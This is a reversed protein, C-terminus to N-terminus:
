KAWTIDGAWGTQVGGTYKAVIRINDSGDITSMDLVRIETDDSLLDTGYFLNSAQAVVVQDDPMGPVVAIKCGEFYPVFTDNMSYANVYGAASIAAIYLRYTTPNIYMYLDESIHSYVASPVATLCASLEAIVNGSTFAGGVAITNVPDVTFLGTAATTFGEFQGPVAAAGTWICNESHQAIIGAIRSLLFTAFDAGMATNWQGAKMQEAQWDAILTEKCIEYNIQLPTPKIKKDSLSLLGASTWDCTRAQVLNGEATEGSGGYGGALQSISREFKINEMLTLFEM